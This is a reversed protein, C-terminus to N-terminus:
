ANPVGSNRLHSWSGCSCTRKAIASLCPLFPKFRDPKDTWRDVYYINKRTQVGFCVCIKCNQQVLSCVRLGLVLRLHEKCLVTCIEWISISCFKDPAARGLGARWADGFVAHLLTWRWVIPFQDIRLGHKMKRLGDEDHPGLLFSSWLLPSPCGLSALSSAPL